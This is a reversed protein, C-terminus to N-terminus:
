QPRTQIITITQLARALVPGTPSACSTPPGDQLAGPAPVSPARCSADRPTSGDEWSVLLVRKVWRSPATRTSSSAARSTRRHALPPGFPSSCRHPRRAAIGAARGRAGSGKCGTGRGVIVPLGEKGGRGVQLGDGRGGGWRRCEAWSRRWSRGSPAWGGCCATAGSPTRLCASRAAPRLLGRPRHPPPRAVGAERAQGRCRVQKRITSVCELFVATKMLAKGTTWRASWWCGAARRAARRAAPRRRARWAWRRATRRSPPCRPRPAQLLLSLRNLRNLLPPASAGARHRPQACEATVAATAAGEESGGRGAAAGCGQQAAAARHVPQRLGAADRGRQGRGGRLALPQRTHRPSPAAPHRTAPDFVRTYLGICTMYDIHWGVRWPSGRTGPPRAPPHM